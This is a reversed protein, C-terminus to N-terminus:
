DANVGPENAKQIWPFARLCRPHFEEADHDHHEQDADRERDQDTGLGMPPIPACAAFFRSGREL